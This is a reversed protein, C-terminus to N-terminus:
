MKYFFKKYLTDTRIREIIALIITCTDLIKFTEHFHLYYLSVNVNIRDFLHKTKVNEM